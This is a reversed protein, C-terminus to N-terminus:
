REAEEVRACAEPDRPFLPPDPVLQDLRRMIARSGSIKEGDIKLGPVTRAGFLAKQVHAPTAAVRHALLEAGEDVHGERGCRVPALWPRRLSAPAHAGSFIRRRTLGAPTQDM